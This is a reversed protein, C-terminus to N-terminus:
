RPQRCGRAVAQGGSPGIGAPGAQDAGGQDDHHGAQEDSRSSRCGGLRHEHNRRGENETIGPVGPGRPDQGLKAERRQGRGTSAHGERQAALIARVLDVAVLDQRVRPRDHRGRVQRDRRIQFAPIGLGGILDRGRDPQSGLGTQHATRDLIRGAGRIVGDIIDHGIGMM